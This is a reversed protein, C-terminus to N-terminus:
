PVKVLLSTLSDTFRPFRGFLMEVHKGAWMLAYLEEWTEAGDRPARDNRRAARIAGTFTRWARVIRVPLSLRPAGELRERRGLGVGLEFFTRRMFGLDMRDRAVRHAVIADARYALVHTERIRNMLHVEEHAMRRLGRHGLRTDFPPDFSRALATRVAMNAGLPHEGAAFIRHDAGYDILTLLEAHPGDLWAPPTIPWDPVIRGGVAGVEPDDFGAAIADTWGPAVLVDDDTFLVLEGRAEAAGRNRAKSHGIEPERTYRVPVERSSAELERTVAETRADTGNDVVLLERAVRSGDALISDLCDRLLEPNDRTCVVITVRPVTM